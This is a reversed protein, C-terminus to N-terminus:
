SELAAYQPLAAQRALREHDTWDAPIPILGAITEIALGVQRTVVDAPPQRGALDDLGAVRARLQAALIAREATTAALLAATREPAWRLYVGAQILAGTRRRAQALGVVKRRGVAVEYPSLGGFCVRRLLPDLLQADARAAAIDVVRAAIGLGALAAAWVAGLWRYSQTVDHTYLPDDPPLALDLLLLSESLVVGGGSRRRHVPIGAAACAALDVEDLRQSSGLLLAPPRFEYWRMAPAGTQELGALLAVSGALQEAADAANSPLVRIPRRSPTHDMLDGEEVLTM